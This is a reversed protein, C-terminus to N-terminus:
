ARLLGLERVWADHWGGERVRRRVDALYSEPAPPRKRLHRTRNCRRCASVINDETCPGGDQQAQLHEATCQLRSAACTPVGPLEAPSALWMQVGCYHCRGHQRNFANRRLSQIKSPM